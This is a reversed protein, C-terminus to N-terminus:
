RRQGCAVADREVRHADIEVAVAGVADGPVAIAYRGLDHIGDDCQHRETLWAFEEEPRLSSPPRAGELEPLPVQEDGTALCLAAELVADRLHLRRPRAHADHESVANPSGAM